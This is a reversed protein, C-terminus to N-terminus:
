FFACDNLITVLELLLSSLLLINILGDDLAMPFLRILVFVGAGRVNLHLFLASSLSVDRTMAGLFHNKM